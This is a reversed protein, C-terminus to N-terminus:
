LRMNHSQQRVEFSFFRHCIISFLANELFTEECIMGVLFLSVFVLLDDDCKMVGVLLFTFVLGRPSWIGFSLLHKRFGGLVSWSRVKKTKSPKPM